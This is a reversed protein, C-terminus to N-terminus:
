SKKEDMKIITKRGHATLDSPDASHDTGLEHSAIIDYSDYFTRRELRPSRCAIAINSPFTVAHPANSRSNWALPRDFACHTAM